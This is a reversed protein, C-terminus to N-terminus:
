PPTQRCHLRPSIRCLIRGLRSRGPDQAILDIHLARIEFLEAAVRARHTVRQPASLQPDDIWEQWEAMVEFKGTSPGHLQVAGNLDAHTSGEERQVSVKQLRPPCVPQQTAHVVTLARYPTVM